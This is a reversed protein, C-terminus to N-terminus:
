YCAAISRPIPLTPRTPLLTCLSPWAGRDDEVFNFTAASAAVLVLLQREDELHVAAPWRSLPHDVQRQEGGVGGPVLQITQAHGGPKDIKLVKLNTMRLWGPAHWLRRRQGYFVTGQERSGAGDTERTWRRRVRREEGRPRRGHTRGDNEGWMWQIPASHVRSGGLSVPNRGKARLNGARKRRIGWWRRGRRRRRSAAVWVVEAGRIKRAYAVQM